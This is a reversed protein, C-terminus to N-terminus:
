FISIALLLDKDFIHQHIEWILIIQKSTNNSKSPKLYITTSGDCEWFAIIWVLSLNFEKNNVIIKKVSNINNNSSNNNNFSNNINNNILTNKM